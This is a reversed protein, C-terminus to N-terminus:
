LLDGFSQFDVAFSQRQTELIEKIGDAETVTIAGM